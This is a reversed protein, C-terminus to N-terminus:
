FIEGGDMPTVYKIKPKKATKPEINFYKPPQQEVPPLWGQEKYWKITEFTGKKYDNYKFEFGLDKIKKNSFYYQHTLYGVMPLDFKPRIGYKRAKKEKRKLFSFALKAMIKFFIWPVPVTTFSVGLTDYLDELWKEQFPTDNVINYIEGIADEKEALFIASKALDEVHIMPMMLKKNKPIIKPLLSHGMIYIMYYIHYMGYTQYPGYIPASRMITSKFEPHEESTKLILNEQEVKTQSYNNPPDFPTMEDIPYIYGKKNKQYDPEGYVGCTSWHIFRPPETNSEKCYEFIVEIFNNLGDYNVKHLLDYSAGYDYLSAPHFIVDYNKRDNSFIEKSFLAKLTDKKTLDAAIYTVGEWERCDLYQLDFSFVKEKTMVKERDETKLDTAVVNWGKELLFKVLYSGTHGLAGDVLALKM